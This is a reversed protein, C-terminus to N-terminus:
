SGFSRGGHGDIERGLLTNNEVPPPFDVGKPSLYLKRTAAFRVSKVITRRERRTEGMVPM